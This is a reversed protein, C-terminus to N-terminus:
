KWWYKWWYEICDSLSISRLADTGERIKHLYKKKNLSKRSKDSNARNVDKCSSTASYGLVVVNRLSIGWLWFWLLFLTCFYIFFNNLRNKKGGNWNKEQTRCLMIRMTRKLSSLSKTFSLSGKWFFRKLFGEDKIKICVKREDKPSFYLHVSYFHLLTWFNLSTFVYRRNSIVTHFFIPIYLTRKEEESHSHNLSVNRM